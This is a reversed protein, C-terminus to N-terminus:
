SRTKLPFYQCGPMGDCCSLDSTHGHVVAPNGWVVSHPPVNKTVVAGSGVLSGAGIVVGPLITVNVGVNAGRELRPGRMVDKAQPCGPFRDNAFTCGPGVFVDDEIDTFQPVYVNSHIKVRDGISCGYDIVSNSWVAVDDGLTNEERILANHGTQLREGITTGGYIISGSRINAGAGIRLELSSVTRDPRYGLLVGSDVSSPAGISILHDPM